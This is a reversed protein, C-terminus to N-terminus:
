YSHDSVLYRWIYSIKVCFSFLCNARSKDTALTLVSCIVHDFRNFKKKKRKLTFFFDNQQNPRRVYKKTERPTMPVRFTRAVLTEVISKVTHFTSDPPRLCSTVSHSGNILHWRNEHSSYKLLLWCRLRTYIPGEFNIVNSCTRFRPFIQRRMDFCNTFIVNIENSSVCAKM